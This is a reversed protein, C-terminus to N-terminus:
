ERVEGAVQQRSEIRIGGIIRDPLGPSQDRSVREPYHHASRRNRRDGSAKGALLQQEHEDCGERDARHERGHERAKSEHEGCTEDGTQRVTRIETDGSEDGGGQHSRALPCLADREHEGSQRDRIDDANWRDGVEPLDGIPADGVERHRRDERGGEDRNRKQYRCLGAIGLGRDATLKSREAAQLHPECQERSSDAERAEEGDVGVDRWKDRLNRPESRRGNREDEHDEAHPHGDSVEDTSPRRVAVDDARDDDKESYERDSEGPHSQGSRGHRTEDEEREEGPEGAGSHRWRDLRSQHINRAVTLSESGGHIM